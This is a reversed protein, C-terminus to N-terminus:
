AKLRKQIQIDDMGSALNSVLRQKGFDEPKDDDKDRIKQWEEKTPQYYLDHKTRFADMVADAIKRKEKRFSRKLIDFASLTEIYREPTTKFILEKYYNNQHLTDDYTIYAYRYICGSLVIAEEKNAYKIRYEKVDQNESMVDEYVLDYKKCIAKVMRIAVQKEGGIGSKALKIIKGLRDKEKDDM